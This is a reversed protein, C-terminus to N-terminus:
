SASTRSKMILWATLLVLLGIVTVALLIFAKPSLGLAESAPVNSFTHTTTYTIPSPISSTVTYPTPTFTYSTAFPALISSPQPLTVYVTFCCNQTFAQTYLYRSWGTETSTQFVTVPAYRLSTFALIAAALLLVSM